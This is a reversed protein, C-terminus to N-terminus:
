GTLRATAGADVPLVTGTIHTSDPHALFMVARTIEAPKMFAVPQLHLSSFVSEVDALAPRELDPRMAGFLADNFTMPTEVNGPAVANVTIGFGALDHAAVKTLGIVGWKSAAYAAQGFNGSRGLMSSVTVIRGYGRKIMGPAVAAITNFTGTLNSGIVEDWQASPVNPLMAIASVGANTVAIDLRGFESEVDAVFNELAGRDSTSLKATLCRRGTAEVMEATTALDSETALPYAIQENSECRDCIAIDAGAEALAVAHSRGMGRAGGTILAVLGDFAGM